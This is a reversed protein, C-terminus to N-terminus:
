RKRGTGGEGAATSGGGVQQLQEVSLEEVVPQQVPQKQETM